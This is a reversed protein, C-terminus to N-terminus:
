LLGTTAINTQNTHQPPTSLSLCLRHKGGCAGRDQQLSVESGRRAAGWGVGEGAARKWGVARQMIDSCRFPPIPLSLFSICLLIVSLLYFLLFVFIPFPLPLFFLFPSVYVPQWTQDLGASLCLNSLLFSALELLCCCQAVLILASWCDVIAGDIELSAKM